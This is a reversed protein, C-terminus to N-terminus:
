SKELKLEYNLATIIPQIVREIKTLEIDILGIDGSNKALNEIQSIPQSFEDKLVMQFNPKAHHAIAQIRKTNKDMVAARLKKLHNPLETILSNITMNKIHEVGCTFTNLKQLDLFSKENKNAGKLSQKIEKNGTVNSRAYSLQVLKNYLDEPKYPKSLYEDAGFAKCKKIEGQNVHATLAMMRVQHTNFEKRIEAMAQYGDMIPMQMDMLIIDYNHEHMM